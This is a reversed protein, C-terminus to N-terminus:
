YQYCGSQRKQLGLEVRGGPIRIRVPAADGEKLIEEEEDDSEVSDEERLVAHVEEAEQHRNKRTLAHQGRAGM